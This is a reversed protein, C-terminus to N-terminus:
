QQHDLLTLIYFYIFVRIIGSKSAPVGYRSEVSKRKSNTNNNNNAVPQPAFSIGSKSMPVGYMQEVSLNNSVNTPQPSLAGYMDDDFPESKSMPVGYMTEVSKKKTIINDTNKKVVPKPAFSIGSKSMPVGFMAEISLDNSTSKPMNGYGPDVPPKPSPAVYLRKSPPVGYSIDMWDSNNSTNNTPLTNSYSPM